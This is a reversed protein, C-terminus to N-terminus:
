SAQEFGSVFLMLYDFSAVTKTSGGSFVASLSCNANLSFLMPKFEILRSGAQLCDDDM